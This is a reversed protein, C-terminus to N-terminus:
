NGCGCINQRWSKGLRKQRLSEQISSFDSCSGFAYLRFCTPKGEEPQGGSSLDVARRIGSIWDGRDRPQVVGVKHSMSYHLALTNKTNLKAEGM